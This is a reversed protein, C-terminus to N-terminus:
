VDRTVHLMELRQGLRDAPLDQLTPSHRLAIRKEAIACETEGGLDVAVDGDRYLRRPPIIDVRFRGIVIRRQNRRMTIEGKIEPQSVHEARMGDNVVALM